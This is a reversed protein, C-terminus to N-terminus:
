INFSMLAPIMVIIMVVVLMLGMPILMKTGAEEGLKRAMMKRAEFADSSERELMKALDRTGKKINQELLTGFKLYERLNCRKGFEAYAKVEPLGSEMQYYTILMEEYAFRIKIGESKRKAAYDLVTKEWAKSITMGAGLLLTMKSIIEAYDHEMQRKRIGAEKKRQSDQGVVIMGTAVVFFIFVIGASNEKVEEYRLGYGGIESPLIIKESMASDTVSDRIANKVTKSFEEDSKVFAPMVRVEFDVKRENVGYKMLASLEVVASEIGSKEFYDNKVTGDYSIINYDGSVWEIDIHYEEIQNLLNLDSTIKDLSENKGLILKPLNKEVKEFNAYVEDETYKRQEIKLEIKLPTDSGSKYVNLNLNEPNEVNQPRNIVNGDLLTNEGKSFLTVMYIFGSVLIMMLVVSIKSASNKMPRIASKKSPFLKRWLDVLRCAAPYFYVVLTFKTKEKKDEDGYNRNLWIWCIVSIIIVMCVVMETQRM